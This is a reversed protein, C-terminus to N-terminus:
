QYFGPGQRRGKQRTRVEQTQYNVENALGVGHVKNGNSAKVLTYM